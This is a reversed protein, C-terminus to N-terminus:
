SIRGPGPSAARGALSVHTGVGDFDEPRCTFILVQHGRRGAEAGLIELLRGRRGRDTHGFPDDLVIAVGAGAEEAVLDAVALRYLISVQERTGFSQDPFPVERGAPTRIVSPRGKEDVAVLSDDQLLYSIWRQLRERVPEGIATTIRAKEENLATELLLLAEAKSRAARVRPALEAREAELDALRGEPNERRLTDIETQIERIRTEARIADSLDETLRKARRLKEDEAM